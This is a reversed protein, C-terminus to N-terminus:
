NCVKIQNQTDWNSLLHINYSLIEFSSAIRKYRSLRPCKSSDLTSCKFGHDSKLNSDLFYTSSPLYTYIEGLMALVYFLSGYVGIYCLPTMTFHVLKPSTRSPLSQDFVCIM